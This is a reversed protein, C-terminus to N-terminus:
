GTPRIKTVLRRSGGDADVVDLTLGLTHGQAREVNALVGTGGRIGPYAVVVRVASAADRLTITLARGLVRGAFGLRKGGPTKVIVGRGGSFRLGPSPTMRITGIAPAGRSAALTLSLTPRDQALGTLSARSVTPAAGVTWRFTTGSTAGAADRAIITVLFTGIRRPTGSVRGSSAQLSLGVPLGLARFSVAAGSADAATLRLSVRAHVTSRQAGPNVTRLTNACLRAALATANPTGLGSAMDYGPAAGFRGGNTGTFDNNGSIVDNFDDAYASGAARYLAPNAFGISTGRCSRSGDALAIVAAWVPAGASTGGIGQWGSPLGDMVGGGNWYILYGTAPDADASVDPVQRCFGGVHHCGSGPSGAPALHLAPSADLQNAPMPWLTSRGGGGAGPQFPEDAASAISNWVVETPRPGVAALSTGGVATVFPQSAPDDVALQPQPVGNRDTCDESGNDGSAAIISQGQVAAQEFLTDEADASAPGLARECQGWSVTIVRARDQNIIASFTDYPGSGPAGSSSDPGQYVLVHANPALGILTEIDLAAEGSGPGQGAGGDVAVSAITAHTRYCAQYTAIDRPDDPELEYVAVTVGGAGDKAAYLGSFGYASAIQDMTYANQTPAAQQAAACPQPGGTVVHSRALPHASASLSGFESPDARRLLPRPASVTDLGVVAQVSHAVGADFSPAATAAIATQQGPLGLRLFSLSFARALQGATASVPISLGNASAPGPSLGHARLSSQVARLQGASVGFRQAFQRPTLYRRYLSSGVTSVAQAYHALAGPDHANLSVTVHMATHAPLGGLISAGPPLSPQRGVRMLGTTSAAARATPLAFVALASAALWVACAFALYAWDRPAGDRIPGHSDGSQVRDM